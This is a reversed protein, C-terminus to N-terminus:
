LAIMIVEYEDDEILDKVAAIPSTLPRNQPNYQRCLHRAITSLMIDDVTNTDEEIKNHIQILYKRLVILMTETSYYGGVTFTNPNITLKAVAKNNLIMKPPLESAAWKM